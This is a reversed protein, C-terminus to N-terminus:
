AARRRLPKQNGLTLRAKVLAAGLEASAAPDAGALALDPAASAAGLAAVGRGVAALAGRDAPAAGLAAVGPREAMGRGVGGLM